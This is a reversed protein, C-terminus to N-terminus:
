KKVEVNYWSQYIKDLIIKAFIRLKLNNWQELL